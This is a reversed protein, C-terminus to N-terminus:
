YHKVVPHEEDHSRTIADRTFICYVCESFAAAMASLCRVTEVCRPIQRRSVLYHRSFNAVGSFAPVFVNLLGCHLEHVYRPFHPQKSRAFHSQDRLSIKRAIIKKKRCWVTATRGSSFVDHWVCITLIDMIEFVSVENLFISTRRFYSQWNSVIGIYDLGIGIELAINVAVRM